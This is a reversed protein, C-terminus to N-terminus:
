VDVWCWRKGRVKVLLKNCKWRKYSVYKNIPTLCITVLPILLCWLIRRRYKWGRIDSLIACFSGFIHTIM